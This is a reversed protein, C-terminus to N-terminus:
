PGFLQNPDIGIFRLIGPGRAPCSVLKWEKRLQINKGFLGHEACSTAWFIHQLLSQKHALEDMLAHPVASSEADGIAFEHDVQAHKLDRGVLRWLAYVKQCYPSVTALVEEGPQLVDTPPFLSGDMAAVDALLTMLFTSHEVKSEDM